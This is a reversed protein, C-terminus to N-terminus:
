VAGAPVPRQERIIKRAEIRGEPGKRTVIRIQDGVKLEMMAKVGDFHTGSIVYVEASDSRNSLIRKQVVTLSQKVPDLATVAGDIRHSGVWPGIFIGAALVLTVLLLRKM